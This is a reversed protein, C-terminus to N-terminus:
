SRLSEPKGLHLAKDLQARLEADAKELVASLVTYESAAEEAAGEDEDEFDLTTEWWADCAAAARVQDLAAIAVRDVQHRPAGRLFSQEDETAM